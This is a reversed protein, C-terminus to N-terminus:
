DSPHATDGEVLRNLDFLYVQETPGVFNLADAGLGFIIVARVLSRVKLVFLSHVSCVQWRATM